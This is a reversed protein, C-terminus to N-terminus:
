LGKYMFIKNRLLLKHITVNEFNGSHMGKSFHILTKDFYHHWRGNSKAGFGFVDVKDCIHLALIVTLFGTSPYRGRGESWNDYVYKMFAPHVIMVRDIDADITGRVRKYTNKIHKTTFASILWHLDLTKFPVLVLHTLNDLDVASEPYIIRHTTKSGVDQEYGKTPGMNIRLVFDHSDILKGYHSKLLNGSNGVVACTRCRDLSTEVFHDEDPFLDFLIDVLDAYTQTSSYPQLSNWWSDVDENLVRNNKNMMTQITPNFRKFFWYDDKLDMVCRDCACLRSDEAIIETHQILMFLSFIGFVITTFFGKIYPSEKKKSANM